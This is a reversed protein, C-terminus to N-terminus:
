YKNINNLLFGQFKDWFEQDFYYITGQNELKKFQYPLLFLHSKYENDKIKDVHLFLPKSLRLNKYPEANAEGKAIIPLGIKSRNEYNHKNDLKLRSDRYLLGVYSLANEWTDYTRPLNIKKTKNSFILFSKPEINEYIKNDIKYQDLLKNNNLIKFCGFGNRSKSGIGGHKSLMIFSQLIDKLYKSNKFLIHIEFKTNVPIHRRLYINSKKEKNYEILSGFALFDIIGLNIEKKYRNGTNRDIITISDKYRIGPSLSNKSTQFNSSFLKIDFSSSNETSGFIENEKKLMEKVNNFKYGNIVRWWFRLLGKISAGRLEADEKNAGGIFMPTVVECEFTIKETKLKSIEIKSIEM